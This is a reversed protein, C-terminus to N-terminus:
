SKFDTIDEADIRYERRVAIREIDQTPRSAEALTGDQQEEPAMKCAAVAETKQALDAELRGLRAQFDQETLRQRRELEEIRDQYMREKEMWLRRETELCGDDNRLGTKEAESTQRETEVEDGDDQSKTPMYRQQPHQTDYAEENMGHHLPQIILHNCTPCSTDPGQILQWFVLVICTGEIHRDYCDIHNTMERWFADVRPLRSGYQHSTM